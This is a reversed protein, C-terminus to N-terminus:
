PLEGLVRQAVADWNWYDKVAGYAREGMARTKAADGLLDILRAALASADGPEIVYGTVGDQILEPM